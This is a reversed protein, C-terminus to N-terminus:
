LNWEPYMPFARFIKKINKDCENGLTKRFNWCIKRLFKTLIEIFSQVLIALIKTMTRGFNGSFKMKRTFNGCIWMLVEDCRSM